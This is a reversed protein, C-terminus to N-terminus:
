ARAVIPARSKCSLGVSSVCPPHPRDRAALGVQFRRRGPAGARWVISCVSCCCSEAMDTTGSWCGGRGGSCFRGLSLGTPSPPAAENGGMLKSILEKDGVGPGATGVISIGAWPCSGSGSGVGSWTGCWSGLSMVRVTTRGYRAVAAVKRWGDSLCRSVVDIDGEGDCADTTEIPAKEAAWENSWRPWEGGYTKEPDRPLVGPVDLAGVGCLSSSAALLCCSSCAAVVCASSPLM